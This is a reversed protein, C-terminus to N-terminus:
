ALLRIQMNLDKVDNNTTFPTLQAQLVHLGKKLVGSAGLQAIQVVEIGLTCAREVEGHM